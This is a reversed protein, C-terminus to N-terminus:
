AKGRLQGLVYQEIVGSDRTGSGFVPEIKFRRLAQVAYTASEFANGAANDDKLDSSNWSAAYAAAWVSLEFDTM